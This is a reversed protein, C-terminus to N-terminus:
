GLEDPQGTLQTLPFLTVTCMHLDLHQSTENQTPGLQSEHMFTLMWVFCIFFVDSHPSIIPSLYVRLLVLNPTWM